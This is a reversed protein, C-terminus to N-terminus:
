GKKYEYFRLDHNIDLCEDEFVEYYQIAGCHPCKILKASYGYGSEDWYPKENVIEEFCKKCKM